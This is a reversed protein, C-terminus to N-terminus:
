CESIYYRRKAKPGVNAFKFARAHPAHHNMKAERTKPVSIHSFAKILLM